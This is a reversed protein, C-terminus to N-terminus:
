LSFNLGAVLLVGGMWQGVEHQEVRQLGGVDYSSTRIVQGLDRDVLGMLGVVFRHGDGIKGASYQGLVRGGLYPLTASVGPDRDGNPRVLSGGVGSYLRVGGAGWLHLSWPDGIALGTVGGFSIATTTPFWGAARAEAGVEWLSYRYKLTVDLEVGGGHEGLTAGFGALGAVDQLPTEGEAWAPPVWSGLLLVLRWRRPSALALM